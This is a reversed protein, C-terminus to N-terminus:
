MTTIVFEVRRNRQRGEETTNPALPKSEGYGQAALREAAVGQQILFTRVENVRRESLTQNAKDDGVNDTHGALRITMTPREKMFAALRQLEPRSEPRLEWRNVDFFLNNLRIVAGSELPVLLLDRLVTTSGARAAATALDFTESLPYYGNASARVGYHTGAALAVQYRGDAPNSRAIGDQEGSPLREYVVDAAVPKGSVADLVRGRVMMVVMPRVSAPVPVSVIDDDGFGGEGMTFYASDGSAPVQFYGESNDSNIGRGLNVPVSWRTWSDDLRRSMYIDNGGYGPHGNSSFYLTRNDSAVYPGYDMGITNITDGMHRPTSWTGDGLRHLVYLDAGGRGDNREASAIITQGDPALVAVFQNSHNYWDAIALPVPDSWGTATRTTFCMPIGANGYSGSLLLTNEDPTVGLAYNESATNVPADMRVAQAWSGDVQRVSVWIDRKTTPPMNQHHNARSIYLTAGDPAVIDILDSSTDNVARGLNRPRVSTDADVAVNLPASPISSVQLDDFEVSRTQYVIVGVNQGPVIRFSAAYGFVYVDNVFIAIADNIKEVRITNWTGLGTRVARHASWAIDATYTGKRYRGVRLQGDISILVQMHNDVDGAHYVLGFGAEDGGGVQRVRAQIRWDTGAAIPAPIAELRFGQSLTSEIRYVGDAIAMTSTETEGTTWRDSASGFREDLIVTRAPQAVLLASATMMLLIFFSSSLVRPSRM